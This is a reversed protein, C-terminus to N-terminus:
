LVRDNRACMTENARTSSLGATRLTCDSRPRARGHVHWKCPDQTREKPTSRKNLIANCYHKVQVVIRSLGPASRAYKCSCVSM